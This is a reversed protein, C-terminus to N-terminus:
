RVSADAPRRAWNLIVTIPSLNADESLNNMLFRQGDASVAFQPRAIGQAVSGVHTAFLPVPAGPDLADRSFAIPVAMLRSDPALYFLERGDRRWRPQAGGSTSIAIKGGPGPFHQAYVEMRGSEDSAYAIWKGDPSIQPAGVERMRYYDDPGLHRKTQAAANTACFFTALTALCLFLFLNPKSKFNQM